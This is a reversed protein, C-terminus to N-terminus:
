RSPAPCDGIGDGGKHSVENLGVYAQRDCRPCRHPYQLIHKRGTRVAIAVGSEDTTNFLNQIEEEDNASVIFEREYGIVFKRESRDGRKEMEARDPTHGREAFMWGYVVDGPKLDAFRIPQSDVPFRAM